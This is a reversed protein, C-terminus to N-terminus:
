QTLIVSPDVVNDTNRFSNQSIDEDSLDRQNPDLRHPRAGAQIIQKTEKEEEFWEGVKIKITMGARASPSSYELEHVYIDQVGHANPLPHEIRLPQRIAGARRPQIIPLVRMWEPWQAATLEVTITFVCPALGNDRLRAKEKKRRKQVDIDVGYKFDTISCVGPLFTDGIKAYDWITGLQESGIQSESGVWSEFSIAAAM